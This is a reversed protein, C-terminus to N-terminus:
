LVEKKKSFTDAQNKVHFGFYRAPDLNWLGWIISCLTLQESNCQDVMNYHNPSVTTARQRPRLSFRWFHSSSSYHLMMDYLAGTRLEYLVSTQIVKVPYGARSEDLM